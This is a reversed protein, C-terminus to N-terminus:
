GWPAVGFALGLGSRVAHEFWIGDATRMHLVQGARTLVAVLGHRTRFCQIAAGSHQCLLMSMRKHSRKDFHWDGPRELL